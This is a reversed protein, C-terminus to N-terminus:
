KLNLYISNKFLSSVLATSTVLTKKKKNKNKKEIWKVAGYKIAWLKEPTRKERNMHHRNYHNSIFYFITIEFDCMVLVRQRIRTVIVGCEQVVVVGAYECDYRLAACHAAAIPAGTM